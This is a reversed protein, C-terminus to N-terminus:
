LHELVLPSLIIDAIEGTIMAFTKETHHYRVLTHLQTNEHFLSFISPNLGLVKLLSGPTSVESGGICCLRLFSTFHTKLLSTTSVYRPENSIGSTLDTKKRKKSDKKM